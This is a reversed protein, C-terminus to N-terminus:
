TLKAGHIDLSLVEIRKKMTRGRTEKEQGGERGEGEGGGAKEGEGRQGGGKGRGERRGIRLCEHMDKNCVLPLLVWDIHSSVRVEKSCEEHAQCRYVVVILWFHVDKWM